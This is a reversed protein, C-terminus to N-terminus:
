SQMGLLFTRHLQQEELAVEFNNLLWMHIQDQRKADLGLPVLHIQREKPATKSNSANEAGLRKLTGVPEM